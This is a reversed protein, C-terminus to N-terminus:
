ASAASIAKNFAMGSRSKLLANDHNLLLEIIWDRAPEDRGIRRLEMAAGMIRHQMENIYRLSKPHEVGSGDFDYCERGVVTLFHSFRILFDLKQDFDLELYRAKAESIDM